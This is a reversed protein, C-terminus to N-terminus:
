KKKGKKKETKLIASMWQERAALKEPDTCYQDL